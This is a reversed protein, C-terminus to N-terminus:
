FIQKHQKAHFQLLYTKYKLLKIRTFYNKVVEENFEIKIQQSKNKPKETNVIELKPPM